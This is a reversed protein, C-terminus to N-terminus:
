RANLALMGAFVMLMTGMIIAFIRRVVARTLLPQLVRGALAWALLCLTPIAIVLAILGPMSASEAGAHAASVTLALVWTKPNVLQLALMAGFLGGAVPTPEVRGDEVSWGSLIIRVALYVLLGAGIIQLALRSDTWRDLAADLGFRMAMVLSLTGLVIGAIPAATGLLRSRVAVDMVVVNNPGPTIAAAFLVAAM